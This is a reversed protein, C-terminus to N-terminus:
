KKESNRFIIIFKGQIDTEKVNMTQMMRELNDATYHRFPCGHTDGPGPM